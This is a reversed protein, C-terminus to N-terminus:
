EEWHTFKRKGTTGSSQYFRLNGKYNKPLFELWNERLINEDTLFENFLNEIVEETKGEFLSDLDKRKRQWFPTAKTHFDVIEYAFEKFNKTKGLIEEYV